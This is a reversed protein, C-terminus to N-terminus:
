NDENSCTENGGGFDCHFPKNLPTTFKSVIAETEKM